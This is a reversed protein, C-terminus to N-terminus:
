SSEAGSSGSGLQGAAMERALQVDDPTDCDLAEHPAATVDAVTFPAVFARVSRNVWQEEDARGRLAAARYAAILPQRNGAGDVVMAADHRPLAALLRPIANAAFPVDVALVAVTDADVFQVAHAIAAAPGAGPPQEQTFLVAADTPGDIQRRPGVVVVCRAGRVAALARDLLTDSGVVLLAKDAGGLRKGAGGALIIADFPTGTPETPM